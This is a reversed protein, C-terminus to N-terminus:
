PEVAESEKEVVQGHAGGSLAAAVDSARLTYLKGERECVIKGGPTAGVIRYAGRLGKFRRGLDEPKLGLMQVLERFADAEKGMPTGDDSKIAVALRPTWGTQSYQGGAQAFTLGYKEGLPALAAVIEAALKRCVAPTFAPIKATSKM